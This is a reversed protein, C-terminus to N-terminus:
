FRRLICSLYPMRRAWKRREYMVGAIEGVTDKVSVVWQVVVGAAFRFRDPVSIRKGSMAEQM